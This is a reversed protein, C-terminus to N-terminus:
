LVSFLMLFCCTSCSPKEVKDMVKYEVFFM